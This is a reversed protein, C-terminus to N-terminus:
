SRFEGSQAPITITHIEGLNNKFELTCKTPKARLINSDTPLYYNITAFLLEGGQLLYIIPINEARLSEPTRKVEPKIKEKSGDSYELILTPRTISGSASNRNYIDLSVEITPEKVLQFFYECKRASVQIDATVQKKMVKHIKNTVCAQYATFLALLVTAIALAITAWETINITTTM